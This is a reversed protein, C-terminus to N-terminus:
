DLEVEVSLYPIEDARMGLAEGIKDTTRGPTSGQSIKVPAGAKMRKEAEPRELPEIAKGM